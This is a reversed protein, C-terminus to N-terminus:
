PTKLPAGDPLTLWAWPKTAADYRLVTGSDPGLGRAPYKKFNYLGDIGPFDTLNLIYDRAQEATANPGLARLAGCGYNTM